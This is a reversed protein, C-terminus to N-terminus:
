LFPCGTTTEPECKSAWAIWFVKLTISSGDDYNASEINLRSTKSCFSSVLLVQQASILSLLVLLGMINIQPVRLCTARPEWEKRAQAHMYQLSSILITGTILRRPFTLAADDEAQRDSCFPAHCCTVGAYLGTKSSMDCYDSRKRKQGGFDKKMNSGFNPSCDGVPFRLLLPPAGLVMGYRIAAEESRVTKTNQVKYQFRGCSALGLFLQENLGADLFDM